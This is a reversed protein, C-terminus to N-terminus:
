ISSDRWPRPQKQWFGGMKILWKKSPASTLHSSSSHLRVLFANRCVVSYHFGRPSFAKVIQRMAGGALKGLFHCGFSIVDTKIRRTKLLTLIQALFAPLAPQEALLTGSGGRRARLSAQIWMLETMKTITIPETAARQLKDFERLCDPNAYARNTCLVYLFKPLTVITWYFCLEISPSDISGKPWSKWNVRRKVLYTRSRENPLLLVWCSWNSLLWLVNPLICTDRDTNQKTDSMKPEVWPTDSIYPCPRVLCHFFKSVYWEKSIFASVVVEWIGGYKLVDKWKEHIRWLKVLSRETKSWTGKTQKITSLALLRSPNKGQFVVSRFLNFM